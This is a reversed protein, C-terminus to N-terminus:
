LSFAIPSHITYYSLFKLASIEEFRRFISKSITNPPRCISLHRWQYVILTMKKIITM